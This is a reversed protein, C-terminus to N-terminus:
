GEVGAGDSPEAAGAPFPGGPASVEAPGAGSLRTRLISEVEVAELGDEPAPWDQLSGRERSSTATDPGRAIRRATRMNTFVPFLDLSPVGPPTWLRLPPTTLGSALVLTASGIGFTSCSKLLAQRM